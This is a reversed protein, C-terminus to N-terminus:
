NPFHNTDSAGVADPCWAADNEHKDKYFQKQLDYIEKHKEEEVILGDEDM